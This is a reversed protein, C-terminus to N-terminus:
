GFNQDRMRRPPEPHSMRSLKKLATYYSVTYYNAARIM